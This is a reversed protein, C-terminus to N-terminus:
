FMNQKTLSIESISHQSQDIPWHKCVHFSADIVNNEYPKQVTIKLAVTSVNIPIIEFTKNQFLIKFLYWIHFSGWFLINHWIAVDYDMEPQSHTPKNYPSTGGPINYIRCQIAVSAARLCSSIALATNLRINCSTLITDIQVAFFISWVGFWITKDTIWQCYNLM